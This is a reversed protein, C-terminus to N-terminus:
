EYLNNVSKSCTICLNIEGCLQGAYVITNCIKCCTLWIILNDIADVLFQVGCEWRWWWECGAMKIQFVTRGDIVSELDFHITHSKFESRLSISSTFQIKSKWINLFLWYSNLGLYILTVWRCLVYNKFNSSCFLSSVLLLKKLWKLYYLNNHAM